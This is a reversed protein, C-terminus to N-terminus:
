CILAVPSILELPIRSAPLWHDTVHLTIWIEMWRKLVGMAILRGTLRNALISQTNDVLLLNLGMM